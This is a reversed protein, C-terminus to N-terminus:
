DLIIVEPDDVVRVEYELFGLNAARGLQYFWTIKFLEPLNAMGDETLKHWIPVPNEFPDEPSGDNIGYVFVEGDANMMYYDGEVPYPDRVTPPADVGAVKYLMAVVFEKIQVPERSYTM